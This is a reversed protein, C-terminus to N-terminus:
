VGTEGVARLVPDAAMAMAESGGELEALLQAFHPRRSAQLVLCANVIDRAWQPSIITNNEGDVPEEDLQLRCGRELLALLRALVPGRGHDREIELLDPPQARVLEWVM